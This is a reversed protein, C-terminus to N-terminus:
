SGEEQGALYGQLLTGIKAREQELPRVNSEVLVKQKRGQEHSALSAREQPFSPLSARDM